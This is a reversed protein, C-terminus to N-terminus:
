RPKKKKPVCWGFFYKKPKPTEEIQIGSFVNGHGENDAAMDFGSVSVNHYVSGHSNPGIKLGTTGGKSERDKSKVMLRIGIAGMGVCLAILLWGLHPDIQHWMLGALASVGAVALTLLVTGIAM